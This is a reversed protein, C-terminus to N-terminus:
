VGGLTLWLGIAQGVVIFIGIEVMPVLLFILFLLKGM